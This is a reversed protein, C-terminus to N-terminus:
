QCCFARESKQHGGAEDSVEPLCMSDGLGAQRIASAHRFTVDPRLGISVV